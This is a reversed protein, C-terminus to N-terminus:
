GLGKSEFFIEYPKMFPKLFGKPLAGVYPNPCGPPHSGVYHNVAALKAELVSSIDVQRVNSFGLKPLRRFQMGYWGWVLYFYVQSRGAGGFRGCSPPLGSVRTAQLVIRVAAEHDPWCDLPHPCYIEDPMVQRMVQALQDVARNFESSDKAPISGDRMGLWHIHDDPVGLIGAVARAQSRRAEGLKAQNM